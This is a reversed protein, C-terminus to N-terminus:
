SVDWIHIVVVLDRGQQIACVRIPIENPYGESPVIWSGYLKSPQILFTIEIGILHDILCNKYFFM